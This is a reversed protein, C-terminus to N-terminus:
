RLAYELVDFFEVMEMGHNDKNHKRISEIGGEKALMECKLLDDRAKRSCFFDNYWEKDHGYEDIMFAREGTERDDFFYSIQEMLRMDWGAGKFLFPRPHKSSLMQMAESLSIMGGVVSFDCSWMLKQFDEQGIKPLHIYMSGEREGFAVRDSLDPFIYVNGSSYATETVFEHVTKWLTHGTKDAGGGYALCWDLMEIGPVHFGLKRSIERKCKAPDSGMIRSLSSSSPPLAIYTNGGFDKLFGCDLDLGFVSNLCIDSRDMRPLSITGMDPISIIRGKNGEIRPDREKSLVFVQPCSLKWVDEYSIVRDNHKGGTLVFFSESVAEDDNNLTEDITYFVNHGRNALGEGVLLLYAIDGYGQSFRQVNIVVDKM